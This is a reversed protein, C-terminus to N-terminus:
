LFGNAELLIWGSLCFPLDKFTKSTSAWLLASFKAKEFQEM